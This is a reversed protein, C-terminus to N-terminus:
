NASTSGSPAAKPGMTVTEIKYGAPIEFLSAPPEARDLRQLEIRSQWVTGDAYTFKDDEVVTFKLEPSVWTEFVGTSGPRGAADAPYTQTIRTGEAYVGHITEGQLKEVTTKAHPLGHTPIPGTGPYIRVKASKEEPFLFVTQRPSPIYIEVMQDIKPWDGDYGGEKRDPRITEIRMRGQSDRVEFSRTEHLVQGGDPLTEVETTLFQASYPLNPIYDLRTAQCFAPRPMFPVLIAAFALAFPKRPTRM